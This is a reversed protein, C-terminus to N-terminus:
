QKVFKVSGGNPLDKVFYIGNSLFSVDITQSKEIKSNFLEQGLLNAISINTPKTTEITLNNTTPNPYLSISNNKSNYEQIGVPPQSMKHIFVDQQGISTLNFVGSNPDFDGTDSFLGTSYINGSIDVDISYGRDETLGGMQIAWVFNGSSDLKSVFVDDDGLGLSSLNFVGLNPDFDATGAFCGLTYVDGFNDVAISYGIENALGGIQKAWVFNGAQDLKSIFVDAVGASNLNYIGVGPDFDCTDFFYGSTYINGVGDLFASYGYDNNGGGMQKVWVFNGFSDLKLLFIDKSVGAATLNYTGISPDFDATGGFYGVSYISGFSDAVISNVIELNTGGIKKAWVFNGLSDLKSIFIDWSGFPTLNYTSASPDFDTTGYFKGCTYVNGNLDTIISKSQDFSIGGIQKVWVFNGSADLKLIFIDDLGYSSVNYVGSGPNFDATGTFFGTIYVNGMIDITIARGNEATATGIQKAWVFNGLADLKSIFVDWSGVGTLYYTGPGPDFDVTGQFDGVIYINGSDDSVISQGNDNSIEGWQKAWEFISTQSNALLGILQLIIVFLIKKM